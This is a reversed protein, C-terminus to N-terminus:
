TVAQSIQYIPVYIAFVIFAVGVGVLLLIAPEVLSSVAKAIDDTRQQYYDAVKNLVKDLQGTEEGVAAMQGVLIPFIPEKLLQSSLPVGKEVQRITNLVSEEYIVNNIVGSSVKLADLLPVGAGILMAMTRTFRFMYVGEFMTRLGPLRIQITSLVRAGFDTELWYRIVIILGILGIMVAWWYTQMFDSISLLMRTIVPLNAGAQDFLSKLKPVVYSLMFIAIGILAVLIFTPYYLASRIKSVFDSNNELQGALENLVIDLKGTTEGSAVVSIYVRDFAEPHKALATSFSYGEELDRYIESFIEKELDSSAQKAIISVAKSLPLGASLMTALQRSFIAKEHISIHGFLFNRRRSKPAVIEVPVLNHKVLVKEAEATNAARVTGTIFQGKNNKAKYLYRPM